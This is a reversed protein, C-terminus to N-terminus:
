ILLREIAQALAVYLKGMDSSLLTVALTGGDRHALVRRIIAEFDHVYRNVLSRFRPDEAHLAAIRAADQRRLLRVATRTFAGDDGNLYAQWAGDPVDHALVAAVDIAITNLQEVLVAVERAMQNEDVTATRTQLSEARREAVGAAENISLMQALLKETAQGTAAVAAEATDSILHIRQTFLDGLAREMADVGSRALRDGIDPIMAELAARASEAADGATERVRLIADILKGGSLEALSRLEAESGSVLRGLEAAHNRLAELRAGAQEAFGESLRRQREVLADGLEGIEALQRVATEGLGTITTRQREVIVDAAALREASREIGEALKQAESAISRIAARGRAAEGEVRQIAAPLDHEVNSTIADFSLRLAEARDSLTRAGTMGSTVSHGLGEAHEALRVILEALEATQEAGTIGLSEFRGEISSLAQDLSAVLHRADEDQRALQASLTELQGNMEVLRRAIAAAASTGAEDLAARGHDIMATMAQRQLELSQRTQEVAGVVNEAAMDVAHSLSTGAEGITRVTREARSEIRGIQTALRGAAAGIMEDAEHSRAVIAGLTEALGESRERANEGISRIMGAVEGVTDRVRPLDALLGSMDNRATGAAEHLLGAQRALLDTEDRMDMSIQQLREAARSGEDLLAGAHAALDARRVSLVTNVRGIAEELRRSEVRMSLATAGFRRAERGSSRQVLMYVIGILALPGSAMAMSHLLEALSFSATGTSRVWLAIWLAGLLGLGAGLAVDGARRPPPVAPDIHPADEVFQQELLLEDATAAQEGRDSRSAAAQVAEAEAADAARWRDLPHPPKGMDWSAVPVALRAGAESVFDKGTPGSIVGHREFGAFQVAQEGFRDAIIEGHGGLEACQKQSRGGRMDSRERLGRIDVVPAFFRQTKM